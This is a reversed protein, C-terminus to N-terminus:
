ERAGARVIGNFLLKFTGHPQGRYLIHPGFLVLRGQGVKADVIAVGNELYEQGLAWGSPLPTKSDFWAVRTLEKASGAPLRFTPSAAFMVDVEDALGWALPHKADVRMRLVSAPVYFKERTLGREKGDKDVSVLHNAVPLALEEALGTAGGITLITGGKDLFKRLQAVTTATPGGTPALIQTLRNGGDYSLTWRNGNTDAFRSPQGSSDYVAQFGSSSSQTWTNSGPDYSLADAGGSANLYNNIVDKDTFSTIGGQGDTVEAATSSLSTLVQKPVASWGFGFESAVPNSSNYVPTPLPDLVLVRIM